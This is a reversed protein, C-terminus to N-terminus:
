LSKKELLKGVCHNEVKEGRKEHEPAWAEFIVRLIKKLELVFGLSKNSPNSWWSNFATLAQTAHIQSFCVTSIDPRRSAILRFNM